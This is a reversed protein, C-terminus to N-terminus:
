RRQPRRRPLRTRWLPPSAREEWTPWAPWVGAGPVWGVVAAVAPVAAAGDVVAAAVASDAVAANRRPNM